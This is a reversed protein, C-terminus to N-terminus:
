SNVRLDYTATQSDGNRDTVTLSIRITNWKRLRPHTRSARYRVWSENTPSKFYGCRRVRGVHIRTCNFVRGGSTTTTVLSWAYTKKKVLGRPWGTFNAHLAIREGRSINSTTCATGGAETCGVSLSWAAAALAAPAAVWAAAAALLLWALPRRKNLLSWRHSPHPALGASAMGAPRLPMGADMRARHSM